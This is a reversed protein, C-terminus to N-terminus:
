PLELKQDVVVIWVTIAISLAVVTLAVPLPKSRPETREAELRDIERAEVAEELLRELKFKVM